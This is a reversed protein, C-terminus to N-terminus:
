LLSWRLGRYECTVVHTFSSIPGVHVPVGASRFLAGAEGGPCLVVPRYRRRDLSRLLLYLSTPAGGLEPRHHVYLVTPLAGQLSVDASIIPTSQCATDPVASLSEHRSGTM